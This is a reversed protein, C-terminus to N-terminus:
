EFPYGSRIWEPFGGPFYYLNTFGWELARRTAAETRWCDRENCYMVVPADVDGIFDLLNERTFRNREDDRDRMITLNRAEPVRGAEYDARLRTDVFPVGARFLAWAEAAETTQSGPIMEPARYPGQAAAQQAFLLLCLVVLGVRVLSGRRPRFLAQHFVANMRSRYCPGRGSGRSFAATEPCIRAPVARM